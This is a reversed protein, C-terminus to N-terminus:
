RTPVRSRSHALVGSRRALLRTSSAMGPCPSARWTASSTRGDTRATWTSASLWCVPSPTWSAPLVAAPILYCPVYLLLLGLWRSTHFWLYEGAQDDLRRSPSRLRAGSPRLRAGTCPRHRFEAPTPATVERRYVGRRRAHDRDAGALGSGCRLAP